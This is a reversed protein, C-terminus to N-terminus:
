KVLCVVMKGIVFSMQRDAMIRSSLYLNVHYIGAEKDHFCAIGHSLKFSCSFFFYVSVGLWNCVSNSNEWEYALLGLYM